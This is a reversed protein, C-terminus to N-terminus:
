PQRRRDAVVAVVLLLVVLASVLMAATVIRQPAYRVHLDHTGAPLQWGVAYGDTLVPDGLPQSGVTAEWRPDWAIGTSVVAPEDLEVRLHRSTLDADLLEVTGVARPAPDPETRPAAVGSADSRLVLQDVRWGIGADYRHPGSALAVPGCGQLRLPRDSRLQQVTADVEVELATGDVTGIALCGSVRSGPGVSTTRVDALELERIPPVTGPGDASVTITVEDARVARPLRLMSRAGTLELEHVEGGADLTLTAPAAGPDRQVRLQDIALPEAGALTLEASTAAPRWATDGDGDFAQSARGLVGDDTPTPSTLTLDTGALAVADALEDPPDATRVTATVHMTREDPLTFVRLLNAEEDDVDLAPSGVVRTLVVDLPADAVEETADAPIELTPLEMGSRIARGAVRIDSFGVPGPGAGHASVVGVEVWRSAGFWGLQVQGDRPVDVVVDEDETTVRLRSPVRDLSTDVAIRVDDVPLATGYDLRIWSDRETGFAGTRWATAPDGDAAFSPPSSADVRFLQPDDDSSTIAVGGALVGTTQTAPDTTRARTAAPPIEAEAPLAISYSRDLGRVDWRRRQNTDTLVLRGGHDLREVLQDTSLEDFWALTRDQPAYGAAALHGLAFADGTVVLNDELPTVRWPTAPALAVHTLADVPPTPEGFLREQRVRPGFRGAISAGDLASYTGVLTEATAAGDATNESDARVLVDSVGLVALYAAVGDPGLTGTNVGLDFATLLNHAPRSGAPVTPRWVVERDEFLATDLDDVGAYDWRYRALFAGPSFLLRGPGDDDLEAAADYWYDPVDLTVPQTDGVWWPFAAVVVTAVVVPAISRGRLRGVVALAVLIAVGLALMSGIKNTTRFGIAGPVHEFSWALFRGFASSRDPPHLGVMVPLALALLGVGLLRARSRHVAVGVAALVPLGLTAAVLWADTLYGVHGPAEPQGGLVLYLTWMGLGRLSELPSSPGAVAEPAETSAAVDVGTSGAALLTPVLWYLSVLVCPVAVALARRLATRWPVEGTRVALVAAVGLAPALLLNVIGGNIGGMAAYALATAASWRWGGRTVALLGALVFWPLMAHPLRIPLTAGAVIAYPHLAYAVGATVAVLDTRGVLHRVLAAAGAAGVLTCALALLRQSLWAEIGLQQMGLVLATVPAIGPHYNPSGLHPVPRWASLERELMRAPNLYLEPKTDPTLVGWQPLLHAATAAVVFVVALLVAARDVEIRPRSTAPRASTTTTV